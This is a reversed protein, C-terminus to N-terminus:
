RSWEQIAIILIGVALIISIFLIILAIIHGVRGPGKREIGTFISIGIALVIAEVTIFTFIDM